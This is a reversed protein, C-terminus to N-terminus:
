FGDGSVEEEEFAGDLGKRMIAVKGEATELEDSMGKITEVAEKYLEISNALSLGGTDLSEAIEVIRNMNQEFSKKM